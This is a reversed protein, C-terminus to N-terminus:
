SRGSGCADVRGANHCGAAGKGIRSGGGPDGMLYGGGGNALSSTDLVRRAGLPDPLRTRSVYVDVVANRVLAGGVAHEPDSSVSVAVKGSPVEVANEDKKFYAASLPARNPIRSTAPKGGARRGDVDGRELSAPECAM